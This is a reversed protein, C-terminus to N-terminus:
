ILERLGRCFNCAIKDLRDPAVLTTSKLDITAVNFMSCRGHFKLRSDVGPGGSTLWWYCSSTVRSVIV